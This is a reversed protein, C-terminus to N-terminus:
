YAEEVVLELIHGGSELDYNVELRVYHMIYDIEAEYEVKPYVSDEEEDKEREPFDPLCSEIKSKYEYFRKTIVDEPGPSGLIGVYQYFFLMDEIAENNAGDIHEKCYYFDFFTDTDNAAKKIEGKISSFGDKSAELLKILGSCFADTGAAFSTWDAYWNVSPAEGSNLNYRVIQISEGPGTFAPKQLLNDVLYYNGGNNTLTFNYFKVTRNSINKLHYSYVKSDGEESVLKWYYVYDKNQQPYTSTEDKVRMFKTNWTLAPGTTYVKVRFYGKKQYPDLIFVDEPYPQLIEYTETNPKIKFNYFAVPENGLNELYYTYAIFDDGRYDEEWSSKYDEGSQPYDSQAFVVATSILFLGLLSINNIKM